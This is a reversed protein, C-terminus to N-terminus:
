MREPLGVDIWLLSAVEKSTWTTEGVSIEAGDGPNLEVSGSEARGHLGLLYGARGEAVYLTATEGSGLDIWEVKADARLPMGEDGAVLHRGPEDPLSREFYAAEGGRTNPEFWIQLMRTPFDTDNGEAHVMGNRASILQAGRARVVNDHAQNGHHSVEGDVVVTLIEMEQHPHLPFRSRPAFTADALVLLPGLRGGQWSVGAPDEGRRLKAAPSRHFPPFGHRLFPAHHFAVGEEGHPVGAHRAESSGRKGGKEGGVIGPEEAVFRELAARRNPEEGRCDPPGFGEQPPDGVAEDGGEARSGADPPVSGGRSHFGLPRVHSSTRM